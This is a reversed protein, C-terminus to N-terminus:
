APGAPQLLPRVRAVHAQFEAETVDRNGFLVREGALVLQRLADLHALGGPLHRLADRMTWSPQFLVGQAAVTRGLVAQALLVLATRRDALGLIAQLDAPVEVGGIGKAGGGAGRRSRAPNAAAGGLSLTVRGANILVLFAIGLLVGALLLYLVIRDPTPLGPRGDPQAAPDPAANTSLAPLARTPDLYVVEADVRSLRLEALYAAGSAGPQFGEALGAGTQAPAPGVMGAFIVAFLFLHRM